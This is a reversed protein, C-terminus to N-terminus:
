LRNGEIYVQRLELDKSVVLFDAKKGERIEGTETDIGLQRAPNITAAAVAEELPIGFSVANKLMDSVNSASGALTGDALTARYGQAIIGSEGSQCRNKQLTIEQDGLQYHGEPMGCCALADSILIVRGRFLQFVMRIVPPAIHIGDCILEVYVKPTDYAASVPGPNRHHIGPMGNFLHTMQSAGRAFAKCTTEYDAETHAVSVVTFDAAERIFDMAGDLEPAVDVLKILGGSSEYLKRFEEIDPARLYKPDQAGRKGYSFYPGEMNIGVLRSMRNGKGAAAKQMDRLARANQFAKELYEYPMTMSAPAFSTIGNEALYRAMTQLGPLDCTSFDFGSNGHGHLDILGPLVLAGQLDCVTDADAHPSQKTRCDELGSEDDSIMIRGFRDGQVEFGGKRFAGDYFIEGNIFRM